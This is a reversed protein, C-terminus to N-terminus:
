VSYSATTPHNETHDSARLAQQESPPQLDGSEAAAILNEPPHQLEGADAVRQTSRAAAAIASGQLVNDWMQQTTPVKLLPHVAAVAVVFAAGAQALVEGGEVSQLRTAAALTDSSLRAVADRYAPTFSTVSGEINERALSLLVIEAQLSKGSLHDGKLLERQVRIAAEITLAHGEADLPAVDSHVARELVTLDSTATLANRRALDFAARSYAQSATGSGTTQWATRHRLAGLLMGELAQPLSRDSGQGESYEAVAKTVSSVSERVRLASVIVAGAAVPADPEIALQTVADRALSSVDHMDLAAGADIAVSVAVRCRASSGYWLCAHRLVGDRQVAAQLAEAGLTMVLARVGASNAPVENIGPDREVERAIGDQYISRAVLVVHSSRVPDHLVDPAALADTEGPSLLRSRVADIVDETQIGDLAHIGNTPISRVARAAGLIGDAADYVRPLPRARSIALEHGTLV